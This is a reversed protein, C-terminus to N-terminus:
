KSTLVGQKSVREIQNVLLDIQERYMQKVDALDAKLEEVQEDREGMLELASSHRRRLAELEARLSPLSLSENRFQECQQTTSVLEEALSDRTAELSAVRAAYGALEGDKHRMMAEVQEMTASPLLGQRHGGFPSVPSYQDASHVSLSAALFASEDASGASSVSSTNRLMRGTPFDATGSGHAAAVAKEAAARGEARIRKEYEAMATRETEMEQELAEKRAREEAIDRRHRARLERLEEELQRARGEHTAAAEMATLYEHRNEGARSREKDLSRVLQAQEARLLALQAEMVSLRSLTQTLREFCSREKEEAVAAKTEAEQLRNTLAQEVGALAEVRMNASEQMAQIQRLLPRTSDPMRAMLEEHRSEAGQCRKQLDDLDRRLMDERFAAQQETRSLAQRLEEVSGVLMRERDVAERIKKDFDAKAESDVRAEAQVQAAKAEALAAVYFEKQSALETQGREVAEQLAKETQAKDKKMSEGRAEEVQLKSTLRQKEDELERIQSRLKKMQLEQAAQKKSLEEGEAMVQKIIEDKEKLLASTDSKRSQERRMMDREKTLAYVKREAASLRHQYEERLADVEAESSKRSEEKSQDVTSQLEGLRCKLEDNLGMFRALEDAKTQAQRAAAQLSIEMQKLELRLRENEERLPSTSSVDKAQVASFSGMSDDVDPGPVVTERHDMVARDESDESKSNTLPFESVEKQELSSNVEKVIDKKVVPASVLLNEDDQDVDTEVVTQEKQSILDNSESELSDLNLDKQTGNAHQTIELDKEGNAETTATMEVVNQFPVSRLSESVSSSEQEGDKTSEKDRETYAIGQGESRLEVESKDELLKEGVVVNSKDGTIGDSDVPVELTQLVSDDDSKQAVVDGKEVEETEVSLQSVYKSAIKVEGDQDSHFIGNEKNGHPEDEGEDKKSGDEKAHSGASTEKVIDNEREVLSSSADIATEKKEPSATSAVGAVASPTAATATSVATADDATAAAATAAAAKASASSEQFGFSSDFSTEISKVSESLKNVADAFNGLDALSVKPLWAM